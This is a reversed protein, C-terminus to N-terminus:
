AGFLEAVWGEPLFEESKIWVQTPPLLQGSTALEQHLAMLMRSMRFKRFFDICNKKLNREKLNDKTTSDTLGSPTLSRKLRRKRENKSFRSVGRM